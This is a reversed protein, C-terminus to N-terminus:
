NANLYNVINMFNEKNIEFKVTTNQALKRLAALGKLKPKKEPKVNGYGGDKIESVLTKEKKLISMLRKYKLIMYNKEGYAFIYIENKRSRAVEAPSIHNVKGLSVISGTLKVQYNVYLSAKNGKTLAELYYTEGLGVVSPDSYKVSYYSDNLITFSKITKKDVKQKSSPNGKSALFVDIDYIDRMSAIEFPSAGYSSYLRIVANKKENKKNVYTVLYDKNKLPLIKSAIDVPYKVNNNFREKQINVQEASVTLSSLESLLSLYEDKIENPKILYLTNILNNLTGILIKRNKKVDVKLDQYANDWFKFVDNYQIYLERPNDGNNYKELLEEARKSPEKWASMDHKKNTKFSILTLKKYDVVFDLKSTIISSLKDSCMKLYKSFLIERIEKEKDVIMKEIDKKSYVPTTSSTPIVAKPPLLVDLGEEGLNFSMQKKGTIDLEWNPYVIYKLRYNPRDGSKSINIIEPDSLVIDGASLAINIDTDTKKYELSQLYLLSKLLKNNFSYKIELDPINKQLASIDFSCSYTAVNPM